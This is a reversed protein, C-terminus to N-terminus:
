HLPGRNESWPKLCNFLAQERHQHVVGGYHSQVPPKPLAASANKEPRTDNTKTPMNKRNTAMSSMASKNLDLLEAITTLSCGPHKAVYYLTALQASSVGLTEFTSANAHAVLARSAKHMVFLLRRDFAM